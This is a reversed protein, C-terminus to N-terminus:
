QALKENLVSQIRAINRRTERIILPNNLQGMQNKMKAQFLAERSERNKKRLEDVTLDRMEAIKM